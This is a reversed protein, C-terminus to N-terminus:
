THQGTTPARAHFCGKRQLLGELLKKFEPLERELLGFVIGNCPATLLAPLRKCVFAALSFSPICAHAAQLAKEKQMLSKSDNVLVHYVDDETVAIGELDRLPDVRGRRGYSSAMNCWSGLAPFTVLGGLQPFDLALRRFVFRNGDDPRPQVFRMTAALLNTLSFELVGAHHLRLLRPYAPHIGLGGLVNNLVSNLAQSALM